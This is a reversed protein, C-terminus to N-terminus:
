PTTDAGNHAFVKAFTQDVASPHQVLYSLGFLVILVGVVIAWTKMATKVEPKNSWSLILKRELTWVLCPGWFSGFAEQCLADIKYTPFLPAIRARV